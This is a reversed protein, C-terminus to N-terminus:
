KQPWLSAATAINWFTFSFSWLWTNQNQRHTLIQLPHQKVDVWSMLRGVNKTSLWDSCTNRRPTQEPRTCCAAPFAMASLENNPQLLQSLLEWDCEEAAVLNWSQLHYEMKAVCLIYSHQPMDEHSLKKWLKLQFSTLNNDLYQCEQFVNLAFAKKSSCHGEFSIFPFTVSVSGVFSNEKCREAQQCCRFVFPFQNQM